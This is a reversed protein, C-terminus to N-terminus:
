YLYLILLDVHKLAASLCSYSILRADLSQAFALASQVDTWGALSRGRRGQDPEDPREPKALPRM